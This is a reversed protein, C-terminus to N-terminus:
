NEESFEVQSEDDEGKVVKRKKTKTAASKPKTPTNKKNSLAGVEKKVM